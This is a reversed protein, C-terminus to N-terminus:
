VTISIALGVFLMFVPFSIPELGPENGFQHYIGWSLIAGFGFPILLSAISVNLTTRWQSAMFRLDVEVGILFLFLLLGLNAVLSLNPISEPPFIAATFGPIRGM